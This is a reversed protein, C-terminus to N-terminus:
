DTGPRRALEREPDGKYGAPYTRALEEPTPDHRVKAEDPLLDVIAAMIAKTDTDPDDYSLPVPPGAKVTVLPRHLPNLHPIRSSRPWVKETGWIGLPIVPAKTMAALKAAGWRGQLEPEFFAPGRPITGQPMLGVVEGGRLAEAAAELPEDSGTGREVRIGGIWRAVMGFLPVDFVEKKGLFRATRGSQSIALGLAVGDFYSRHNGVVIAPGADPINELGEFEFHAYPV